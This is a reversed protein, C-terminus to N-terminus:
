KQMLLIFPEAFMEGCLSGVMRHYAVLNEPARPHPLARSERTYFAMAEIKRDVQAQTMPVVFNVGSPVGGDIGPMALIRTVRGLNAPRLAIRCCEALWRHDQNLDSASHVVVEDPQYEALEHELIRLTPYYKLSLPEGEELAYYKSLSVGLFWLAQRYHLEQEMAHQDGTGYGYTRGFVTIVRVADEAERRTMILGGCGLVEDDPHALLCLTKMSTELFVGQEVRALLTRDVVDGTTV